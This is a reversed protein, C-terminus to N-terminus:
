VVRAGGKVWERYADMLASVAIPNTVIAQSEIFEASTTPQTVNPTWNAKSLLRKLTREDSLDLFYKLPWPSDHQHEVARLLRALDLSAKPNVDALRCYERLQSVSVGVHRGWAAITRTDEKSDLVAVLTRAWRIVAHPMDSNYRAM